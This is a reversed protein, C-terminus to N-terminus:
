THTGRPPYDEDTVFDVASLIDELRPRAFPISQVFAAYIKGDPRILFIGPESFVAPEKDSIPDSIFLGWERATQEALGHGVPIDDIDWESTTKEFLAESDMSLAVVEIGRSKFESLMGNLQELQKKCVPCHLGRYFVLMTFRDPSADALSWRGERTAFSLDPAPAGPTLNSRTM